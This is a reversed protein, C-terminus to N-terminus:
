HAATFTASAQNVNPVLRKYVLLMLTLSCGVLGIIVLFTVQPGYNQYISTIFLPGLTRASSGAATVLGMWVGQRGAALLKSYIAFVMVAACPYGIAVFIQGLIYQAFNLQPIKSCWKDQCGVVFDDDAQPEWPKPKGPGFPIYLVLGLITVLLFSIMTQREGIKKSIPKVVIFMFVAILGFMGSFVGGMIDAKQADWAYEDMALPTSITEFVSLVVMIGFYIFLMTFVAVNDQGGGTVSVSRSRAVKDAPHEEDDEGSDNIGVKPAAAPSKVGFSMEQFWIILCTANILEFLVSCFAPARLFDFTLEGITYGPKVGGFAVGLLPGFIFGLGGSAALNAVANTREKLTTAQSVYANCLAMNGAGIGVLLRAEAMFIDRRGPVSAAFIYMLNGAIKMSITLYFLHRFKVYNSWFGWYPSGSLQGLSFASVVIGLFAQTGGLTELYQWMTSLCISFAVANLFNTFYISRISNWRQRTQQKTEGIENV